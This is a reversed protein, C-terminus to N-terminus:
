HAPLFYSTPLLRSYRKRFPPTRPTAPLATRLPHELSCRVLSYGFQVDFHAGFYGCRLLWEPGVAPWKTIRGRVTSRLALTTIV